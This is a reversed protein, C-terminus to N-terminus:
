KIIYKIIILPQLKDNKKNYKYFNLLYGLENYLDDYNDKNMYKCVCIYIITKLIM